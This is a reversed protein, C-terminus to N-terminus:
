EVSVSSPSSTALPSVASSCKSPAPADVALTIRTNEPETNVVSVVLPTAVRLEAATVFLMETPPFMVTVPVTSPLSIAVSPVFSSPTSALAVASWLADSINVAM